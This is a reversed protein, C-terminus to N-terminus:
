HVPRRKPTNKILMDKDLTGEEFEDIFQQWLLARERKMSQPYQTLFVKLNSFTRKPLENEYEALLDNVSTMQADNWNIAHNIRESEKEGNNLILYMLDSNHKEFKFKSYFRESGQIPLLMMFNYNKFTDILTEMLLTGTKPYKAKGNDGRMTSISTLYVYKYITYTYCVAWGIIETEAGITQTAIFVIKNNKCKFNEWPIPRAYHKSYHQSLEIYKDIEVADSDHNCKLTHIKIENVM